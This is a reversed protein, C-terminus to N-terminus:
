NMTKPEDVLEYRHKRHHSLYKGATMQLRKHYLGEEIHRKKLQLIGDSAPPGHGTPPQHNQLFGSRWHHGPSKGRTCRILFRKSM